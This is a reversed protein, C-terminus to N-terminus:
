PYIRRVPYEEGRTWESGLDAEPGLSGAEPGLCAPM